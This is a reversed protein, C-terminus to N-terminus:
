RVGHLQRACGGLLDGAKVLERAVATAILRDAAAAEQGAALLASRYLIADAATRRGLLALTDPDILESPAGAPIPPQSEGTVNLTQPTLETGFLRSLAAWAQEGLEIIGVAGLTGLREIAAAAVTDVDREAIFSDPPIRPHGGALMRCIGNDVVPALRPESLFDSLPALAYAQRDYPHMGDFIGPTRWFLYLSILRARPERLVTGIYAPETIELLTAASFHGSVATYGRLEEVEDATVAVLRRADASLQDFDEFDCLTSTDMRRPSVAQEGLAEQLAVHVSTGAAKPVHLFCRPTM